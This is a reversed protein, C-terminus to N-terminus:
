AELEERRIELELWRNEAAALEAQADALMTSAEEFRAPDRGYLDPDALDGQLRAVLSRLREMRAPLEKLAHQDNFSM